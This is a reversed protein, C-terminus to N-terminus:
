STANELLTLVGRDADLSARVGVPVTMTRKEHGIPFGSLFPKSAGRTADAMIEGLTLSPTANSRPACDSFQGMAVGRVRSFIGANELQTLMRDVRYPEEGIEELFLLGSRFDPMYPTGLLSVLLSLNGGLLRGRASGPFRVQPPLPDAQALVAGRGPSTLMRWLSEEAVPDADPTTDAAVMPGHFTVLRCKKWLAMALATIDSYGVLIKPNRAVLRYNIRSLIRSTGYGGRACFIAKVNRDAFMAHVDETREEDTGALYGKRQLANKGVRTRYGLGELYRVGHEIRSPDHVPSAPSIIGILDGKRLRRPVLVDM